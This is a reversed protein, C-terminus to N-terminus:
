LAPQSSFAHEIVTRLQKASATMAEQEPENLPVEIVQAMGKGNVIAPTGIFIDHLGYQGNLYASVPFVTSTDNLIADTIRTLATAIGYFTAGKLDIIKYAKNRVESYIGDLKSAGLDHPWQTVPLGGITACSYAAFESDGHEGMIYAHVSRADVGTQEALAQRLRATDLSTGTGLVRAAPFGSLKWVVYTLVDVPNAAILFIGSFGSAVIPDVISEMIRLNKAVLDLRTEGPKQPAGATIIVVDADRADRYEAAYIRSPRTYPLADQLDLADGRAKDKYVDVVGISQAVGQLTMAYAFSSGIAGDGVILVKKNTM